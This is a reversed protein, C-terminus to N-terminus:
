REETKKEIISSAEIQQSYGRLRVQGKGTKSKIKKAKSAADHQGWMLCVFGCDALASAIERPRNTELRTQERWLIATGRRVPFNDEDFVQKKQGNEWKDKLISSVYRLSADTNIELLDVTGVGSLGDLLGKKEEDLFRRILLAAHGDHQIAVVGIAEGLKGLFDLPTQAGNGAQQIDAGLKFVANVLYPQSQIALLRRFKADIRLGDGSRNRVRQAAHLQRIIAIFVTLHVDANLHALFVAFRQVL